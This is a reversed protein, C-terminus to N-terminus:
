HKNLKEIAQKTRRLGEDSNAYVGEQTIINEKSDLIILLCNEMHYNEPILKKIAFDDSQLILQIFYDNILRKTMEYRTFSGLAYNLQSKTKHEKDYIVIFLGKNNLKAAKLAEKYNTLTAGFFFGSETSSKSTYETFTLKPFTPKTIIRKTVDLIGGFAALIVTFPEFGPSDTKWWLIGTFIVLAFILIEIIGILLENKFFKILYFQIIKM